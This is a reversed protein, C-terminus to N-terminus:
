GAIEMVTIYSVTRPDYSTTNRDSESRNIYTAETGDARCASQIKYTIASTTSPSDLIETSIGMMSGDTDPPSSFPLAEAPRNSASAARGLETSDRMVRSKGVYHGAYGYLVVKVLIKSSTAKPTISVSLGIDTFSTSSIASTDTKSGQLTQLVSGAPLQLHPLTGTTLKSASVGSAVKANTVANTALKDANVTGDSPTGILLPEGMALIFDISDSSALASSFTLTSGSVTFSSGPKQIVGNLSVLLQNASTPSFNASNLQLTYSATASATLADLVSYGGVEPQTGIFPM